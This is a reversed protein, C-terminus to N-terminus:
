VPKNAKDSTDIATRPPSNTASSPGDPQPLLVTSRSAAPSSAGDAPVTCDGATAPLPALVVAKTKWSGVSIGQAM